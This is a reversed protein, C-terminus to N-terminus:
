GSYISIIQLWKFMLLSKFWFRTTTKAFNLKKFNFVRRSISYHVLFTKEDDWTDSCEHASKSLNYKLVFIIFNSIVNEVHYDVYLCMKSLVYMMISRRRCSLETVM